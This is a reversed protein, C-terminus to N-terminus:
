PSQPVEIRFIKQFEGFYTQVEMEAPTNEVEVMIDSTAEYKKNDPLTLIMSPLYHVWESIHTIKHMLSISAM